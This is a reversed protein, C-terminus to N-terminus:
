TIIPNVNPMGQIIISKWQELNLIFRPRHGILPILEKIM